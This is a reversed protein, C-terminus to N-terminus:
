VHLAGKVPKKKFFIKSFISGQKIYNLLPVEEGTIRRAINNYCLESLLANKKNGDLHLLPEGHNQAIIIQEDEPVVGLLPVDLLECIDDINLMDGDKVMHKRFGNILLETKVTYHTKLIQLVCDADHIAAIQPTTVVVIRDAGTIALLFGQDIGAPSDVLIYDFEQRLDDLLHKMQDSDLLIKEKTCSSPIVSLNPFRKDRIIAQKARCRGSLVDVLNYLIRNELGMVVDYESGKATLMIIPLKRTDPRTRLKKLISIGDEEPLMVDLLILSPIEKDLEKWFQSPREFGKAEMGQSKLTYVVLERISEDDEVLYIM